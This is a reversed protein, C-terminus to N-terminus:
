LEEVEVDDKIKSTLQVNLTYSHSCEYKCDPCEIYGNQIDELEYEFYCNCNRCNTRYKKYGHEIVKIM